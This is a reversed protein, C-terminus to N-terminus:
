VADRTIKAGPTARARQWFRGPCATVALEHKAGAGDDPDLNM